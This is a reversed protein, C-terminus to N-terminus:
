GASLQERAEMLAFGLLNLGRWREPVKAFESDAAMGIGWIRDVPSAEVLVRRSTGVLFARLEDDSSFKALSASVVIEWRHERWLADDFHEVERGLAKAEAPTRAQLIQQAHSADGFLLSKRWMM